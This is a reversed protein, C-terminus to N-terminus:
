NGCTLHAVGLRKNYQGSKIMGIEIYIISVIRRIMHFTLPQGEAKIHLRCVSTFTNFHGQGQSRFFTTGSRRRHEDLSESVTGGLRNLSQLRADLCNNTQKDNKLVNTKGCSARLAFHPILM